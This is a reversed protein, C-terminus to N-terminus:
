YLSSLALGPSLTISQLHEDEVEGHHATIGEINIM